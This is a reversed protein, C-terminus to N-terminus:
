LVLCSLDGIAGQNGTPMTVWSACRHKIPATMIFDTQQSSIDTECYLFYQKGCLKRVHMLTWSIGLCHHIELGVKIKRIRENCKWTCIELTIEIGWVWVDDYKVAGHCFGSNCFTSYSSPFVFHSFLSQPHCGASSQPPFGPLKVTFFDNLGVREKDRETPSFM